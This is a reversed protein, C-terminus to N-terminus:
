TISGFEVVCSGSRWYSSLKVPVGTAADLVEASPARQGVTLASPFADFDVMDMDLPFTPYNYDTM